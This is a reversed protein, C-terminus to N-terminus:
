NEDSAEMFNKIMSKRIIDDPYKQFYEKWIEKTKKLNGKERYLLGLTFLADKEYNGKSFKEIMKEAIIIAKDYEKFFRYGSIIDMYNKETLIDEHEKILIEYYENMKKIDVNEKFIKGLQFYGEKAVSTDKFNGVTLLRYLTIAESIEGKDRLGDAQQKLWQAQQEKDNPYKLAAYEKMARHKEPYRAQKDYSDTMMHYTKQLLEAGATAKKETIQELLDTIEKYNPISKISPGEKPIRTYAIETKQYVVEPTKVETPYKKLYDECFTVIEDETKREKEMIFLYYEAQSSVERLHSGAARKLREQAQERKGQELYLRGTELEAEPKRRSVPYEKMLEELRQLAKEQAKLKIHCMGTKYLVEERERTKKTEQKLYREFFEVARM